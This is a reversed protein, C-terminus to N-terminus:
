YYYSYFCAFSLTVIILISTFAWIIVQTIQYGKGEGINKSIKLPELKRSEEEFIDVQKDYFGLLISTKVYERGYASYLRHDAEIKKHVALSIVISFLFTVFFLGWAVFVAHGTSIQLSLIALMVAGVIAAIALLMTIAQNSHQIESQHYSRMGDFMERKNAELGAISPKDITKNSM